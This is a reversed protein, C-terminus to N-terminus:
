YFENFIPDDPNVGNLESLVEVLQEKNSIYRRIISTQKEEELSQRTLEAETMERPPPKVIKKPTKKKRNEEFSIRIKEIEEGTCDFDNMSLPSDNYGIDSDSDSENDSNGHIQRYLFIFDRDSM